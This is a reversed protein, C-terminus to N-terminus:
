DRQIAERVREFVSAFWARDRMSGLKEAVERFPVWVAEEMEMGASVQAHPKAAFLYMHISKTPGPRDGGDLAIPQREYEGLDDILELDTLGAEEAIERRAADEDSEGAELKGKPFLWLNTPPRRVMAITGADGLVVGGASRVSGNNQDPPM